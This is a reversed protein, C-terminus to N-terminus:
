YVQGTSADSHVSSVSGFLVLLLCKIMTECKVQIIALELRVYNLSRMVKGLACVVVKGMACVVVKGLACM